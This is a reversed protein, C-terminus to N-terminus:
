WESAWSAPALAEFNKFEFEKVILESGDTPNRVIIRQAMAVLERKHVHDYAVNGIVRRVIGDKTVTFPCDELVHEEVDTTNDSNVLLSGEEMFNIGARSFRSTPFFALATFNPPRSVCIYRQPRRYHSYATYSVYRGDKSIDQLAADAKLFQGPTMRDTELNWLYLQSLGAKMVICVVAVPAQTAIVISSRIPPRSATM